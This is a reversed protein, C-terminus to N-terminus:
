CLANGHCRTAMPNNYLCKRSFVRSFMSTV